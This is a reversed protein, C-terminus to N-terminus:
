LVAKLANLSLEFEERVALVTEAHHLYGHTLTDANHLQVPTGADALLKAYLAGDDRLLDYQATGIFAPPLDAHSGNVPAVTFPLATQDATALEALYFESFRSVLDKSHVPGDANEAVAPLSLDFTTAPYWLVQFKLKPWRADRALQAVVAALNGGASDGCVAMRNPDAGLEDAHNAAWVLGDFCDHVAAPYPNEPALRYGVSVVVARVHACVTRAVSDHTDLCGVTFGGGHYYVACPLAGASEFGDPWYIRM